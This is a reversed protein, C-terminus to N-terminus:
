PPTKGELWSLPIKALTITEYASIKGCEFLCGISNDPLRALCSYAAPGAYLLKSEAWTQGDDYSLRVTLKERKLSAPNSFLLLSRDGEGPWSYRFLSGQCVPEILTKDFRVPSWSQGGDHSIAVARRNLNQYSRMNQMVSGDSLEAITSENTKKDESGGIHWTQGHDDSYIVHSRSVTNTTDEKVGSESHNAPILLRGSHGGRTLQIGNVPGTAYWGWGPNKVSATIEEPKTWTLGDDMSHCIFVRRGERIGKASIQNERASGNNWCMLLWITGTTRDVVPTPNGCTNEDDSWILQQASWTKGGDTSRKLLTDIDGSDGRGNKRGECFALLTGNTTVVIAPIRYTHYGGEGARYVASFVPATQAGVSATLALGLFGVVVMTKRFMKMTVELRKM